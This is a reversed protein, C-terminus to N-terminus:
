FFQLCNMNKQCVVVIRGENDLAVGFPKYFFGILQGEKGFRHILEGERNFVSVCHQNYNSMIINYERDIDFCYYEDPQKNDTKSAIMLRNTVIHDSNFIIMSTCLDSHDLVMVRDRTVKIDRPKCLIGLGLLSRFKLEGTLIQIRYNDTDCVFVNNSRDSVDLGHPNNFQPIGNEINGTVSKILNGRLEYMNICNSKAQTVFVKNQSVCIGRPANMKDNFMFLHNGNCSFAQVRNNGEDAIYVNGTKYDICMSSPKNLEGPNRTLWPSVCCYVGPLKKAKYDPIIPKVHPLFTRTPSPINPGNCKITGLQEIDSEFLNDWEFEISIDIDNRLERIKKDITSCISDNADLVKNSKLRNSFISKTDSLDKVLTNIEHNKSNYKKEIEDVCSLLFNEREQLAEHSRKFRDHIKKRTEKIQEIFNLEVEKTAM